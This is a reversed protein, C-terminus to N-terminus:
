DAEALLSLVAMRVAVGNRVQDLVLSRRGTAVERTVEVGENVPGPHLFVAGPRALAMRSEDIRYRRVYDDASMSANGMRERQIRLGMVAHADALAAALDDAVTLRRDAGLARRLDDMGHLMDPPGCAWVDAGAATLSWINSRAVRSHRLDGVIVIKRGALDRVGWAHRLTFLDLLAQTPHAHAGDGANVVSGGFWRAAVAPAGGRRHRVVLMAFGLAALNRATDAVTEGKTLSSAAPDLVFTQGGLNRAAIEFSLRTRTSPEAFLLAVRRGRLEGPEDPSGGLRQRMDAARDIVLDIEALSLDDVDLLHRRTWSVPQPEHSRPLSRPVTSSCRTRAV